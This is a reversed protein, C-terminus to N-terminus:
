SFPTLIISWWRKNKIDIEMEEEHDGMAAGFVSDEPSPGENTLKGDGPFLINTIEYSSICAFPSSQGLYRGRTDYLSVFAPTDTSLQCYLGILNFPEVHSIYAIFRGDDSNIAYDHDTNKYLVHGLFMWLFVPTILTFGFVFFLTKKM